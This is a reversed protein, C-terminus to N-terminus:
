AKPFVQHLLAKGQLARLVEHAARQQVEELAEISYFGAHPTVVVNDLRLLANEPEPPERALVDLAAGSLHRSRLAEVLAEEDVLGGRATNVLISGPKMLQLEGAGIIGHTHENLPIHLSVIDSETLVTEFDVFTLDNEVEGVTALLDFGLVRLGFSRARRAVARGIEGVGVLGLTRGRLRHLRPADRYSWGGARVQREYGVVNRWLALVLALAHEAVEETCYGPTHTVPIGCEYAAHLDIKDVGVGYQCIVKCRKLGAIRDATLEFYDTMVADAEVAAAMVASDSMGLASVVEVGAPELIAGEAEVSVFGAGAGAVVFPTVVGKKM